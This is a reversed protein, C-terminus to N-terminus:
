DGEPDLRLASLAAWRPDKGDDGSSAEGGVHDEGKEQKEQSPGEGARDGDSDHGVSVPFIEPSPGLCDESCLPALPLALLVTDRLTPGLDIWGNRILTSGGESATPDNEPPLTHTFLESFGATASGSAPELCRRCRGVWDVRVEGRAEIGDETSELTLSVEAPTESVAADSLVADSLGTDAFAATTLDHTETNGISRGLQTVRLRLEGGSDPGGSGSGGM